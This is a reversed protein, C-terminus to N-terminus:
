VRINRVKAFEGMAPGNTVNTPTVARKRSIAGLKALQRVTEPIMVATEIEPKTVMPMVKNIIAPSNSREMAGIIAM